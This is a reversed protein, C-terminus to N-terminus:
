QRFCAELGGEAEPTFPQIVCNQPESGELTEHAQKVNDEVSNKDTERSVGFRMKVSLMLRHRIDKDSYGPVSTLATAVPM